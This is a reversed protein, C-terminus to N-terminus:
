RILVLKRLGSSTEGSQISRATLKCLYIGSSIPIGLHNKADWTVLHAGKEMTHDILTHVERGAADYIRMAVVSAEALSFRITTTPNFPNPYNQDLAFVSVEPDGV